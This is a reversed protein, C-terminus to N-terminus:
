VPSGIKIVSILRGYDAENEHTSRRYSFFRNHDTYTCHGTWACSQIGAQRLRHLGFDPLNFLYKEPHAGRTFFATLSSDQDAFREFFEQGVEYAIQSICPGIVANISSRQAGITEMKDITAELIGDLAGRWGAHAAGVIANEPDAFLVPQCDATLVSLGLDPCSTVIADAKPNCPPPKSVVLATSSHIQHIGVLSGDALSMDVTVQNRNLQINDHHDLSGAGCNLGTYIGSSAGGKRTYFGHQFSNLLPSTIKELPM